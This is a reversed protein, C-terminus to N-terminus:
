GARSISSNGDTARSPSNSVPWPDSEFYNRWLASLDARILTDQWPKGPGAFHLVRVRRLAQGPGAVQLGGGADCQLRAQSAVWRARRAYRASLAPDDPLHQLGTANDTYPLPRFHRRTAALAIALLDQDPLALDDFYPAFALAARRLDGITDRDTAVVGSNLSGWASQWGRLFVRPHHLAFHRRRRRPFSHRLKRRYAPDALLRFTNGPAAAFEGAPDRFLDRIDDLVLADPDICVFREYPVADLDFIAYCPGYRESDVRISRNIRLARIRRAALWRRQTDTLGEDIVTVPAPANRAISNVLARVGDFYRADAITVFGATAM